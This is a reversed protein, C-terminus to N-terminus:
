QEGAMRKQFKKFAEQFAATGFMADFAIQDNELAQEFTENRSASLRSKFVALAEPGLQDAMQRALAIGAELTEGVPTVQYAYGLEKADEANLARGALMMEMAIPRGVLRPLRQLGGFGPILGVQVEMQTVTLNEGVVRLDTAMALENGGQGVLGNIAAVIPLPSAEMRNFTKQAYTTHSMGDPGPTIEGAGGSFLEEQGTIVIAIIEDDDIAIDLAANIGTLVPVSTGNIPPSALEIVMVGDDNSVLVDTFADHQLTEAASMGAFLTALVVAASKSALNALEM